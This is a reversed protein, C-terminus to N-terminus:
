TREEGHHPPPPVCRRTSSGITRTVRMHRERGPPEAEEDDGQEGHREETREIVGHDGRRERRDGAFEAGDLLHAPDDDRVGERARHQQRHEALEGVEDTRAQDEQRAERQEEDRRQEATERLVDGLEGDRADRLADARGAQVEHRLRDDALHRRRAFAGPDHRPDAGREGDRDEDARERAAEDGIRPAPAPDEPDVDGDAHDREREGDDRHRVDRATRSAPEVDGARDHETDGDRGEDERRAPGAGAAVPVPM